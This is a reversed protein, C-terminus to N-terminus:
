RAAIKASTRAIAFAPPQVASVARRFIQSRVSAAPPKPPPHFPRKKRLSGGTARGRAPDRKGVNAHKLLPSPCCSNPASAGCIPTRATAKEPTTKLSIAAPTKQISGQLWAASPGPSRGEGRPGVEKESTTGQARRFAARDHCQRNKAFSKKDKKKKGDATEAHGQRTFRSRFRPPHGAAKCFFGSRGARKAEGENEKRWGDCHTQAASQKQPTKEEEKKRPPSLHNFSVIRVRGRSCM